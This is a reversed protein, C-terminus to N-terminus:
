VRKATLYQAFLGGARLDVLSHDASKNTSSAAMSPVNQTNDRSTWLYVLMRSCCHEGSVASKCAKNKFMIVYLIARLMRSTHLNYADIPSIQHHHIHTCVLSIVANYSCIYPLRHIIVSYARHYILETIFRDFPFSIFEMTFRMKYSLNDRRPLLDDYKYYANDAIM